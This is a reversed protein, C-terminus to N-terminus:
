GGHRELFAEAELSRFDELAQFLRDHSWDWWALAAMRRGIETPHILPRHESLKAM